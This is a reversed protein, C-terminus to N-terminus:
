GAATSCRRVLLVVLVVNVGFLCLDYVRAMRDAARGPGLADLGLMAAAIVVVYGLPSRCCSSGARAVDAPRVPLAALTWRIWMYFFLFFLVKILFVGLTIVTKWVAWPPM